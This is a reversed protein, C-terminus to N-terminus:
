RTFFKYPIASRSGWRECNKPGSRKVGLGVPPYSVGTNFWSIAVGGGEWTACSPDQNCRRRGGRTHDTHVQHASQDM